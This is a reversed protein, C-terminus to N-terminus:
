EGKVGGESGMESGMESGKGGRESRVGKEEELFFERWEAKKTYRQL